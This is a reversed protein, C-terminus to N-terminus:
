RKAKAKSRQKRDWEFKFRETIAAQQRVLRFIFYQYFIVIVALEVIAVWMSLIDTMVLMAVVLLCAAAMATTTLLSKRNKSFEENKKLESYFRKREESSLESIDKM